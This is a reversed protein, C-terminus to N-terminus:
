VHRKFKQGVESSRKGKETYEREISKLKDNTQLSFLDFCQNHNVAVNCSVNGWDPFIYLKEEEDPWRQLRAVQYSVSTHGTSSSLVSLIVFDMNERGGWSEMTFAMRWSNHGAAIPM